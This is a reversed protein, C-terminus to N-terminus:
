KDKLRVERFRVKDGPKLQALAPLDESVVNAIKTYGGITQRDAMMIIPQGDGPVQVAGFPIGSSVIDAGTKHEIVEGSLRYGMRDSNPSITYETTLFTKIGNLTFRDVETGPLICITCSNDFKPLQTNKLKRREVKVTKESINLEDGTKLQRGQFGGIKGRLYTSKSGMVVPIDIGGAFAIYFRLGKEIRGFSLVDGSKISLARNQKAPYDNILVPIQAGTIAIECDIMFEITSEVFTCELCAENEPNGVLWNAHKLSQSDMAGAVPMGIHQYGWRGLDQVTTLAGGEIIKIGSM